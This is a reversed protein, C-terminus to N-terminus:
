CGIILYDVLNRNMVEVAKLRPKNDDMNYWLMSNIMVEVAKLRPKNDDM